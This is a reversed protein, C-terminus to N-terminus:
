GGKNPPMPLGGEPSDGGGSPAADAPAQGQSDKQIQDMTTDDESGSSGCGVLMVASILFRSCFM